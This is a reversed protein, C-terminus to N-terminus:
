NWKKICEEYDYNYIKFVENYSLELKNNRKNITNHLDIFFLILSLKTNYIKELKCKNIYNTYHKSCISCPIKTLTKILFHYILTKNEDSPKILYSFSLKHLLTWIQNMYKNKIEIFRENNKTKKNCSSCDYKTIKEFCDYINKYFIEFTNLFLLQKEERPKYTSIIKLISNDM